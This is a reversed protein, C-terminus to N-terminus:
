LNVSAINCQRDPSGACGALSVLAKAIQVCFTAVRWNSSMQRVSKVPYVYNAMILM